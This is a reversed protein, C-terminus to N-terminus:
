NHREPCYLYIFLHAGFSKQQDCDCRGKKYVNEDRPCHTYPYYPQHGYGIEDFFHIQDKRAFM